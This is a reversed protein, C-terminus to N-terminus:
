KSEIILKVLWRYVLFLGYADLSCYQKLDDIVKEDNKGRDINRWNYVAEMGNYIDLDSYSYDSCIDVLKKLTFNGQMRSDYVIGEIFPVALDIFRANIEDLQNKYEPYILSLEKLRLCEAGEANYALIPGSTPLNDLLGKIFELRCDKTGVFTKHILEGNEDLIYLAFEFCVVDMPKMGKYEPILYRDWEFDIFSIPRENLKNLWDKLAYKDVFLGNNKSAMIQAYQVRNGELRNLDVDKLRSIGDEYMKNKNASSVLYLICDDELNLEDPFCKSFYECLGNLRCNKNKKPKFDDFTNTNLTKIIAEYNIYNKRVIDIIRQYKFKDNCIFLKEVDLQGKNEYEENLLFMYINNVKLGNKELIQLNINYTVIDLEKISTGYYVYYLDYGEFTKHMFPINIRLEGDTLRAKVFWEYNNLNNILRDMPDNKIGEFYNDIKLYQIILDFISEDSRLYPRFVNESENSFYYLRECRIFKKIDSIHLM